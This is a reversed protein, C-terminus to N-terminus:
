LNETIKRGRTKKGGILRGFVTYHRKRRKQMQLLIASTSKSITTSM